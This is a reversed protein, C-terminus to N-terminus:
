LDLFMRARNLLYPNLDDILDEAICETVIFFQIEDLSYLDFMEEVDRLTVPSVIWTYLENFGEM